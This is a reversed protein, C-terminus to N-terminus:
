TPTPRPIADFFIRGIYIGNALIRFEYRGPEPIPMPVPMTVAIELAKTRDQANLEFDGRALEKDTAEQVFQFQLQYRGSADTLRAYLAFVRQTPFQAVSLQDFVGILSKKGSSPDISLSDCILGAVLVPIVQSLPEDQPELEM